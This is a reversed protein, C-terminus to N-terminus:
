AKVELAAALKELQQSPLFRERDLGPSLKRKRAERQGYTQVAKAFIGEAESIQSINVSETDRILPM